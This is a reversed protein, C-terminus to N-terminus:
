QARSPSHKRIENLLDQENQETKNIDPRSLPINLQKNYFLENTQEKTYGNLSLIYRGIDGSQTTTLAFWIAFFPSLTTIISWKIRWWGTIKNFQMIYYVGQDPKQTLIIDTGYALITIIILTYLFDDKFAPFFLNAAIHYFGFYIGLLISSALGHGVITGLSLKPDELWKIKGSGMHWKFPDNIGKARFRNKIYPIKYFLYVFVILPNYKRAVIAITIYGRYFFYYLINYYYELHKM